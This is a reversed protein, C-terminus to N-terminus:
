EIRKIIHVGYPSDVQDFGNVALRLSLEKFSPVLQSQRTVDYVAVPDRDENFEKQLEVFDEGSRIREMIRAVLARAQEETREPDKPVLGEAKDKWSVLIHRVRVMAVLEAPDMFLERTVEEDLWFVADDRGSARVLVAIEGHEVKGFYLAATKQVPEPEPEGEKREPKEQWFVELWRRCVSPDVGLAVFDAAETHKLGRLTNLENVLGSILGRDARAAPPTILKWEKLTAGPAAEKRAEILKDGDTVRLRDIDAMLPVLNVEARRIFEGPKRFVRDLVYDGVWHILSGQNNSKLLVAVMGDKREGFTVTAQVPRSDVLYELMVSRRSAAIGLTHADTDRGAIDSAALNELVSIVGKIAPAEGEGQRPRTVQWKNEDV